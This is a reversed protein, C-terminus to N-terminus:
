LMDEEDQRVGAAEEAAEVEASEDAELKSGFAIPSSTAIKTIAKMPVLIPRTMKRLNFRWIDMTLSHQASEDHLKRGSMGCKAEPSIRGERTLAELRQVWRLVVSGWWTGSGLM